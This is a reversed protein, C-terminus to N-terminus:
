PTSGALNKCASSFSWPKFRSRVTTGERLSM